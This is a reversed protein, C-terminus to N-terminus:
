KMMMETFEDFSITGDGDTDVEKLMKQVVGDPVDQLAKQLEDKTIQGDGDLDFVRFAAWLMERRAYQQTQLMSALFETYDIQQTGDTDMADFLAALEPPIPLGAKNLGDQMEKLSLNGDNNADLIAFTKRLEEVETDSVHQAIVTLAVKKLKSAASFSKMKAAIDKHVSGTPKSAHDHIWPHEMMQASSPRRAPDFTLMKNIFDKGHSSIGDWDPSPFDFRGARVRRLIEDDNDGYFPPYGCLLIYAIVGCSWVDCKEDYKGQLVQPAVYYPTGAKTKMLTASGPEYVKALGFDIVKIAADRAKSALLFNEPKIDRHVYNQGHLYTMAGLIQHMYTSAGREDFATGDGHAEAEDVIRDFLEGGTCLEMVLYVKKADRFVEYLKVIHPHDLAQQIGIEDEFRKPDSLKSVDIAKIARIAKTTKDQGRCVSGYSGEGMVKKDILYYDDIKGPKSATFHHKFEVRTVQRKLSAAM